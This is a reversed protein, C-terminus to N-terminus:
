SDDRGLVGFRRNFGHLALRERVDDLVLGDVRCGPTARGQRHLRMSLHDGDLKAGVADGLHVLATADRVARADVFITAPDCWELISRYTASWMAGCHEVTADFWPNAEVVAAMSRVSAAVEHPSRVMVIRLARQLTPWSPLTHSFRPDKLVFPHEPVLEARRRADASGANTSSPGVFAGLWWLQRPPRQTGELTDLTGLLDDNAVNVDLDEFFGNPNASSAPILREGPHFGARVFAEALMSTGSRPAGAIVVSRVHQGDHCQHLVAIVHEVREQATERRLAITAELDDDDIDATAFIRPVDDSRERLKGDDCVPHLAMARRGDVRDRVACCTVGASRGSRAFVNHEAIGVRDWGATEHAGQM